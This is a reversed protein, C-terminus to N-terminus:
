RYFIKYNKKLAYYSLRIVCFFSFLFSYNLYHRYLTYADKLKQLNSGSLSNNLYRWSVLDKNIGVYNKTYKILNVWLLYDEKTTLESFNEKKMLSKKLMVTSLGIDCSKILDEPFINKPSVFKGIIKSNHNVIHYNSFSFEINKNKMFKLQYELKNKKWLDDADCFAIYKGKSFRVGKNRSLGAGITKHNVILKKNLKFSKLIKKVYGLESKDNDDYIIIIEFNKYTQKSISSITEQFFDKKKHYPIIISIFDKKSMKSLNIVFLNKKNINVVKNISVDIILKKNFIL